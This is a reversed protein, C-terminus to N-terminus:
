GGSLTIPVHLGILSEIFKKLSQIILTDEGEKIVRGKNDLWSLLPNDQAAAANTRMLAKAESATNTRMTADDTDADTSADSHSLQRAM